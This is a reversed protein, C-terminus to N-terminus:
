EEGVKISGDWESTVPLVVCVQQRAAEFEKHIQEIDYGIVIRGHWLKAFEKEDANLKEGPQKVEVLITFGFKAVALDPFGKGVIYTHGVSYGLARLGQVIEKQNLDVKRRYNM